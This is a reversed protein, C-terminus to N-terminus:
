SAKKRAAGVAKLDGVKIRRHGGATRATPLIGAATWRRITAPHVGAMRAAVDVTM